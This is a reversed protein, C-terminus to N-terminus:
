KCNRLTPRALTKRQLAAHVAWWLAWCILLSPRRTLQWGFIALKEAFDEWWPLLFKESFYILLGLGIGLLFISVSFTDKKPQFTPKEPQFDSKQPGFSQSKPGFSRSKPGFSHSKPGFSHNKPGFSHSKPGFLYRKWRACRRKCNWDLYGIKYLQWIIRLFYSSSRLICYTCYVHVCCIAHPRQAYSHQIYPM